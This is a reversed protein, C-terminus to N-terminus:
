LRFFDAQVSPNPYEDRAVSRSVDIRWVGEEVTGLFLNFEFTSGSAFAEKAVVRADDWRRFGM